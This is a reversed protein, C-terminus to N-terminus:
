CQCATATPMALATIAASPRRPTWGTSGLVFSGREKATCRRATVAAGPAAREIVFDDTLLKRM